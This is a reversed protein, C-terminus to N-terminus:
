GALLYLQMVKRIRMENGNTKIRTLLLGLAATAIITVVFAQIEYSSDFISIILSPIMLVSEWM